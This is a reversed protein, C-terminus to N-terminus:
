ILCCGILIRQVSKMWFATARLVHLLDRRRARVVAAPTADHLLVAVPFPEIGLLALLLAQVVRAALVDRKRLVLVAIGVVLAAFLQGIGSACGGVAVMCIACGLVSTGSNRVQMPAGLAPLTAKTTPVVAPTNITTIPRTAVPQSLHKAAATIGMGLARRQVLM